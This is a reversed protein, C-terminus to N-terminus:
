GLGPDQTGIRPDPTTNLLHTASAAPRFPQISIVRNLRPNVTVQVLTGPTLSAPDQGTVTLEEVPAEVPIVCVARSGSRTLRFWGRTGLELLTVTFLDAARLGAMLAVIASPVRVAPQVAVQSGHELRAGRGLKPGSLAWGYVTLWGALSAVIVLAAVM